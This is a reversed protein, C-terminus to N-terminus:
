YNRAVDSLDIQERAQSCLHSPNRTKVSAQGQHRRKENEAELRPEQQNQRQELRPQYAQLQADSM